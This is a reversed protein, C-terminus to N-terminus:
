FVSPLSFSLIKNVIRIIQASFYPDSTCIKLWFYIMFLSDSSLSSLLDYKQLERTAFNYLFRCSSSPFIDDTCYMGWEKVYFYPMYNLCFPFNPAALNPFYCMMTNSFSKRIEIFLDKIITRVIKLDNFITNIQLLTIFLM